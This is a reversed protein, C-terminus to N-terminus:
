QQRKLFVQLFYRLVVFHIIFGIILDVWIQLSGSQSHLIAKAIWFPPLFASLWHWPSDWLFVIPVALYMIGAVKSFALGEVKNESYVVLLLTIIAAELAVMISILAGHYPNLKIPSIELAALIFTGLSLLM